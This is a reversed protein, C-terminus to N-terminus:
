EGQGSKPDRQNAEFGVLTMLSIQPTWFGPSLNPGFTANKSLRTSLPVQQALALLKENRKLVTEGKVM